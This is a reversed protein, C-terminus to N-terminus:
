KKSLASVLNTYLSAVKEAGKDVDSPSEILVPVTALSMGDWVTPGETIQIGVAIAAVGSSRVSPESAIMIMVSGKMAPYNAPDGFPEAERVLCFLQFQKVKVLADAFRSEFDLASRGMKSTVTKPTIVLVGLRATKPNACSNDQAVVRTSILLVLLIAVGLRDM